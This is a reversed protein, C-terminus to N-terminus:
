VNNHCVFCYWGSRNRWFQDFDCLHFFWTWSSWIGKFLSKAGLFFSSRSKRSKEQKLSSRSLVWANPATTTNPQAQDQSLKEMTQCTKMWEWMLRLHLNRPELSLEVNTALNEACLMFSTVCCIFALLHFSFSRRWLYQRSVPFAITVNSAVHLNLASKEPWLTCWIMLRM